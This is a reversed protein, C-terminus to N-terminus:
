SASPAAFIVGGGAVLRTGGGETASQGTASFAGRVVLVQPPDVVAVQLAVNPHLRFDDGASPHQWEAVVESASTM